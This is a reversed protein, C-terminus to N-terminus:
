ESGAGDMDGGRGGLSCQWLAWVPSAARRGEVQSGGSAGGGGGLVRPHPASRAVLLAVCHRKVSPKNHSPGRGRQVGWGRRERKVCCEGEGRRLGGGGGQAVRHM